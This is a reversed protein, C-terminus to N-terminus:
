MVAHRQRGVLLARLRLCTQPRLILWLVGVVPRHERLGAVSFALVVRDVLDQPQVVEGGDFAPRQGREQISEFVLAERACM